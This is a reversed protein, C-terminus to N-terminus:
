PPCTWTRPSGSNRTTRPGGTETSPVTGTPPAYGDLAHAALWARSFVSRHEGPAFTVLVSEGADEILTVALDNPIDTVDILKQGSGPDQCQRM